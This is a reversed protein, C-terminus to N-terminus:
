LTARGPQAFTKERIEQCRLCRRAGPQARLRALEIEVGCDVCRGFSGDRMRALAADLEQLERADRALDARDVDSVLDAVSDDAADRVEGVLRAYGDGELREVDARIEALLVARRAEILRRLESYQSHELPV